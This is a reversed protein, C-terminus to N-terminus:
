RVIKMTGAQSAPPPTELAKLIEIVGDRNRALRRQLRNLLEEDRGSELILDTDTLQSYKAKLIKSWATWDGTIRFKETSTAKTNMM